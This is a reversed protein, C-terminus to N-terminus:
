FHSWARYALAQGKIVNRDAQLGPVADIGNILVNANSILRYYFRYVYHLDGSNVNRHTQWQM